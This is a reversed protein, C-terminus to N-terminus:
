ASRPTCVIRCAACAVVMSCIYIFQCCCFMHHFPWSMFNTSAIGHARFNRIREIGRMQRCRHESNVERYIHWECSKGVRESGLSNNKKQLKKNQEYIFRRSEGGVFDDIHNWLVEYKPVKEYALLIDRTYEGLFPFIVESCVFFHSANKSNTIHTRWVDYETTNKNKKKCFYNRVINQTSNNNNSNGCVYPM